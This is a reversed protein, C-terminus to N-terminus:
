KVVVMKKVDTFDGARRTDEPSVKLRYFYTGAPVDPTWHVTHTGAALERDILTLVTRGAVDNVTLVAHSRESLCFSIVTKRSFPNPCNQSLWFSQRGNHLGLQVARSRDSDPGPREVSACERNVLGFDPPRHIQINGGGLLDGASYYPNDDPDNIYITFRDAGKGPEGRDEVACHFTYGQTRDVSCSGSFEACTDGHVTLIPITDSHVKMGTDHDNFQLQGWTLGGESHVNFGFTKRSVPGSSVASIWGGGTVLLNQGCAELIALHWGFWDVDTSCSVVNVGSVCRVPLEFLSAARGRNQHFVNGPGLIVQGNFSILEAVGSTDDAQTFLYLTASDAAVGSFSSTSKARFLSECGDNVMIQVSPNAPHSYIVVLAEGYTIPLPSISYAYNGDGTVLDTVDWRYACLDYYQSSDYGVGPDHEFPLVPALPTGAFAASAPNTSEFEWSAEYMFAWIISAGEPIGSLSFVGSQGMTAVVDLAVGGHGKWFFVTSPPNDGGVCSIGEPIEGDTPSPAVPSGTVPEVMESARTSLPPLTFLVSVVIFLDLAKM